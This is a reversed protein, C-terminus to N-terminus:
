NNTRRQSSMPISGGFVEECEPCEVYARLVMGEDDFAVLSEGSETEREEDAYLKEGLLSNGCEPCSYDIVM